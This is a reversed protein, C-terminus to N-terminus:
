LVVEGTLSVVHFIKASKSSRQLSSYYDVVQLLVKAPLLLVADVNLSPVAVFVVVLELLQDVQKLRDRHTAM